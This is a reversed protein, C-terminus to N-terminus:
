EDGEHKASARRVVREELYSAWGNLADAQEDLYGYRNYIRAVQSGGSAKHNHILDIVSQPVKLVEAM